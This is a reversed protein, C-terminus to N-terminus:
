RERTATGDLSNEKTLNPLKKGVITYLYVPKPKDALSVASATSPRNNHCTCENVTSQLKKSFDKVERGGIRIHKSQSPVDIFNHNSAHVLLSYM